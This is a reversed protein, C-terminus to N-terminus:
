KRGGSVDIDVDGAEADFIPEGFGPSRQKRISAGRAGGLLTTFERRKM